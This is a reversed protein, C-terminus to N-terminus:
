AADMCFASLLQEGQLKDFFDMKGACAPKSIVKKGRTERPLFEEIRVLTRNSLRSDFRARLASAEASFGWRPNKSPRLPSCGSERLIYYMTLM